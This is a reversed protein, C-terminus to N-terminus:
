GANDRPSFIQKKEENNSARITITQNNITVDLDEKKIGPIAAQVVIENDHVLIDIKPFGRDFGTPFNWDLL